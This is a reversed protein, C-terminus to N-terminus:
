LNSLKRINKENEKFKEKIEEKFKDLALRIRSLNYNLFYTM